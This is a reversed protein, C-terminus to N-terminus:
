TVLMRWFDFRVVFFVFNLLPTNFFRTHLIGLLPWQIGDNNHDGM